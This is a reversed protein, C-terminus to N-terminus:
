KRWFYDKEGNVYKAYDVIRVNDANAGIAAHGSTSLHSIQKDKEIAMFDQPTKVEIPRKGGILYGEADADEMFRKAVDDTEFWVYVKGELNNRLNEITRKM